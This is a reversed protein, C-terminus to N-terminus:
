LVEIIMKGNALFALKEDMTLDDFDEREWWREHKSKKSMKGFKRLRFFISNFILERLFHFDWRILLAKPSENSESMFKLKNQFKYM